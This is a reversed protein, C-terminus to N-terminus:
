RADSPSLAQMAEICDINYVMCSPGEYYPEGLIGKIYEVRAHDDREMM